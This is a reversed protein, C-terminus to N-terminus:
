RQQQRWGKVADALQDFVDNYSNSDKTAYWGPKTSCVILVSRLIGRSYYPKAYYSRIGCPVFLAWDIPKISDLTDDVVVYELKFQEIHEAITGKFPHVGGQTYDKFLSGKVYVVVKNKRAHIDSFLIAEHKRDFVPQDFAVQMISDISPVDNSSLNTSSTADTNHGQLQSTIVEPDQLAIRVLKEGMYEFCKLEARAKITATDLHLELKECWNQVVPINHISTKIASVLHSSFLSELTVQSLNIADQSLLHLMSANGKLITGSVANALLVPHDTEEIRVTPAIEKEATNFIKLATDTVEMLAGHYYAPNCSSVGGTLKLWVINGAKGVIRFIVSANRKEKIAEFFSDLLPQDQPVLLKKRFTPNKIFLSTEKGLESITHQNFFTVRSKAIEIRWFLAQFDQIFCKFENGSLEATIEPPTSSEHFM